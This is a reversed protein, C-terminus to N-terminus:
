GEAGGRLHKRLEAAISVSRLDLTGQQASSTRVNATDLARQLTQVM